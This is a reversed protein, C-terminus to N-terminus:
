PVVYDVALAAGAMRGTAAATEMRAEAAVIVVAATAASWAEWTVVMREMSTMAMHEGLLVADILVKSVRTTEMWAATWATL